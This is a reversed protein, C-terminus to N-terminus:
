LTNWKNIEKGLYEVDYKVYIMTTKISTHGLIKNIVDISIGLSKSIVSFTHRASHFTIQKSIGAIKMIEKLYRNTPQATYVNFVKQKDFHKVPLLEKAKKTLPIIVNKQTKIMKISIQKNDDQLDDFRLNEIDSYRLGTYCCFLFYRLVKTINPKLTGTYYLQELSKLENITLFKRNAEITEIPINDFVNNKIINQRKARNLISKIIKMTKNITNKNNNRNVKLFIKLDRIFKQDIENFLLKAKYQKLKNIQAIYSKITNISLEQKIQPIQNEFFDYFSKSEYSINDFDNTFSDFTLLTENIRYNYIINNAKSLAQKILTNKEFHAMNGKTVHENNFHKPKVFISLPFYKVRSKITLRLFVNKTGDKKTYNSKILIKITANM